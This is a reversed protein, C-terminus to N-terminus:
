KKNHKPRRRRTQRRRQHRKRDHGRIALVGANNHQQSSFRKLDNTAAGFLIRDIHNDNYLRDYITPPFTDNDAAVHVGNTNHHSGLLQKALVQGSTDPLGLADVIALVSEEPMEVVYVVDFSRMARLARVGDFFDLSRKEACVHTNKEAQCGYAVLETPDKELSSSLDDELPSPCKSGCRGIFRRAFYNDVQEGANFRCATGQHGRDLWNAWLSLTEKGTHKGPGSYWYESRARDVPHRLHALSVVQPQALLPLCALNFPRMEELLQLKVYVTLVKCLTTSAAKRFRMLFVTRNGFVPFVDEQRSHHLGCTRARNVVVKTKLDDDPPTDDRRLNRLFLKASKKAADAAPFTPDDLLALSQDVNKRRYAQHDFLYYHPRKRHRTLFIDKAGKIESFAPHDPVLAPGLKVRLNEVVARGEACRELDGAIRHPSQNTLECRKYSQGGYRDGSTEYLRAFNHAANNNDLASEVLLASGTEYLFDLTRVLSFGAVFSLAFDKEPAEPQGSLFSWISEGDCYNNDGTVAEVDRWNAYARLRDQKRVPKLSISRNVDVAELLTPLIDAADVLVNVMGRRKIVTPGWVLSVVRAGRETSREKGTDFSANDSLVWVLTNEKNLADVVIGLNKDAEEVMDRFASVYEPSMVASKLYQGPAGILPLRRDITEHTLVTSWFLFRKKNSSDEKTSEIWNKQIWDVELTPGFDHATAEYFKNNDRYCPQWYRSSKTQDEDEGGACESPTQGQVWLFSADFSSSVVLPVGWKGVVATEFGLKRMYGGLTKPSADFARTGPAESDRTRLLNHYVGHFYAYRGTLLTMRSPACMAPALATRFAVGERALRELTPTREKEMGYPLLFSSSMRSSELSMREEDGIWPRFMDPSVDDLLLVVVEQVSAAVVRLLCFSLVLM